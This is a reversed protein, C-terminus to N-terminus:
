TSSYPGEHTLPRPALGDKALPVDSSSVYPSVGDGAVLQQPIAGRGM